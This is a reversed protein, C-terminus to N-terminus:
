CIRRGSVSKVLDFSPDRAEERRTKGTFRSLLASNAGNLKRITRPALTWAECGYTFLSVVAAEYLRLKTELSLSKDNFVHRLQGARTTVIGIRRQIDHEQSGDAAFISGLYKFLYCNKLPKGECM